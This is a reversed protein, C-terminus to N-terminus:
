RHAHAGANDGAASRVKGADGAPELQIQVTTDPLAIRIADRVQGALDDGRRVTWDGPVSMQLAVFRYRGSERTRMAPFGVEGSRFRDLVAVLQAQDAAPLAADLLSRVSASVLRYGVVLINVGVVAAVVPDLREIGTVGVLLVGVIVGVSTWVDTMLHKGDATLTASRRRRGARILTLGVAGNVVTALASVALGVGLRELAVPHLFRDVASYLILAAAVFIMLGELGASFYEAKGHGYHHGDDPPRVAVKLAILAVIAAVLNVVSEAADSLLGVSGTVVYAGWKLGITAIAAAIALWAYRTVNPARPGPEMGVQPFVISM